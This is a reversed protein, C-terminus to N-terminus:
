EFMISYPREVKIELEILTILGNSRLFEKGDFYLLIGPVALMRLQASLEKNKEAELVILEIQPFKSKVMEKVKPFLMKCVGCADQYFYVMVAPKEQLLAEFEALSFQIALEM